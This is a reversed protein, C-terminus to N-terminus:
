EADDVVLWRKARDRHMDDKIRRAFERKHGVIDARVQAHQGDLGVAAHPVSRVDKGDAPLGLYRGDPPAGWGCWVSRSGAPRKTNPCGPCQCPRTSSALVAVPLSMALGLRACSWIVEPEPGRCM